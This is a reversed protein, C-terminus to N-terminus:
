PGPDSAHGPEDAWYDYFNFWNYPALRTYHELRRAYTQAQVHLTQERADRPPDLRESFLEFHVEYRNGGQHLGFGLIVPVRLAAALAWPGVPMRVAGACFEVEFAREDARARDAMIGVMRGAQLAEKLKLILEPGRLSADILDLAVDPNLRELLGIMKRGQRRDMLISLPLKREGSGLTRLPEFNGVHAVLLLCGTGRRSLEAVAAPRHTVIRFKRQRGTLFYLRDLACTAYCYFHRAVDAFRAPRGLLRQLARRSARVARPSTLLFYGVIPMLIFRAIRRGFLLAAATMLYLMFATSRERQQEWHKTM